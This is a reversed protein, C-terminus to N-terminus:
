ALRALGDGAQRDADVIAATPALQRIATTLAAVPAPHQQLHQTSSCTSHAAALRWGNAAMWLAGAGLSIRQCAGMGHADCAAGDIAAAPLLRRLANSVRAIHACAQLIRAHCLACAVRVVTLAYAAPM